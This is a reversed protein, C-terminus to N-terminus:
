SKAERNSGSLGEGSSQSAAVNQPFPLPCSLTQCILHFSHDKLQLSAVYPVNNSQWNRHHVPAPPGECCRYSDDHVLVFVVEVDNGCSVADQRILVSSSVKSKARLLQQLVTVNVPIFMNEKTFRQFTCCRTSLSKDFTVTRGQLLFTAIQFTFTEFSLQLTIAPAM